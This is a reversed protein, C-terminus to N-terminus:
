VCFGVFLLAARMETWRQQTRRQGLESVRMAAVARSTRLPPEAPLRSRVGLPWVRGLATGLARGHECGGRPFAPVSAICPCLQGSQRTAEQRGPRQRQRAAASRGPLDRCM